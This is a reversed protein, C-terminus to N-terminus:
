ESSTNSTNERQLLEYGTGGARTVILRLDHVEKIRVWEGKDIPGDESIARWLAGEVFVMGEPQLSQRVEAVRGVLGEQGTAVPKSRLRIILWIALAAFTAVTLAVLLIAWLAIFVNPAQAADILTLSSVVMLVLGALTLGGHTPVFIDAAIMGFALILGAFSIWRVPLVLLGVLSALVFVLSIGAFIGIGPQVLEAYLAICGLVLLLFAVTPDALLLLFQEWPNPAISRVQRGLTHLQVHDGSALQVTRGEMLTLLEDRDQAVVDIIPPTAAAAQENTILIGDRVARDIWDTDRQQRDNWDYLQQAVSDFVLQKTQETLLHDVEALPDPTGFSTDPSMAAIHAASLFFTGAAGSQTGEPTVYVVVPVSSEAIQVAFPRIARLVAGESQLEILLAEANSAEALQLARQMYNVTVSTVVGTVEISYIDGRQQAFAPSSCCLSVFLLLYILSRAFWTCYKM